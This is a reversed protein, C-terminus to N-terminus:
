YEKELETIIYNPNDLSYRFLVSDGEKLKNPNFDWGGKFEFERGGIEYKLTLSHGKYSKIDTIFGKSYKYEKNVQELRVRDKKEFTKVLLYLGGCVVGIIILNNVAKVRVISARAAQATAKAGNLKASVQTVKAGYM